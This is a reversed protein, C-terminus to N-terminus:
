SVLIEHPISDFAKCFDLSIFDSARGDDGLVAIGVSFAESHALCLRGKTSGHRSDGTVEKYDMHRLVRELFLQEM